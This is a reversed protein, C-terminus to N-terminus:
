DVMFVFDTWKGLAILGGDTFRTGNFAYLQPGNVTTQAATLGGWGYFQWVSSWSNCQNEDRACDTPAFASWRLQQGQWTTPFYYSTAYYQTGSKSNESIPKKSADQMILMEARDSNVNLGLPDDNPQVEVRVAERGHWTLFGDPQIRCRDMVQEGAWGGTRNQMWDTAFSIGDPLKTTPPLHYSEHVGPRAPPCIKSTNPTLPTSKGESQQAWSQTSGAAVIAAIILRAFLLARLKDM